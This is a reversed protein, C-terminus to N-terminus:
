LKIIDKAMRMREQLTTRAEPLAILDEEGSRQEVFEDPVDGVPPGQVAQPLNDLFEQKLDEFDNPAQRVEDLFDEMRERTTMYGNLYNDDMLWESMAGDFTGDEMETLQGEEDGETQAIMEEVMQEYLPHDRPRRQNSPMWYAWGGDYRDRDGREDMVADNLYEIQDETAGHQALWDFSTDYMDLTDEIDRHLRAQRDAMGMTNGLDRNHEWYRMATQHATMSEDNGHHFSFFPMYMSTMPIDGNDMQTQNEEFVNEAWWDSLGEIQTRLFEHTGNQTIIDDLRDRLDANSMQSIPTPAVTEIGEIDDTDPITHENMQNYM